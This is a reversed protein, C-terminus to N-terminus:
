EVGYMWHQAIYAFDVFDVSGLSDIDAGECYDPESCPSSLWRQVFYALDFLDVDEDPISPENFDGAIPFVEYAGMDVRDYRVRPAEDFDTQGIYSGAPNGANICLSYSKLHLDNVDVFLPDVDINGGLDTGFSLNWGSGSGNSNEIDCYNIVPTSGFDNHIEDNGNLASNDWFICNTITPACNVLNFMGGGNNEASNRSFTCNTLTSNSNNDNLIGGGDLASNDSFTCNILIPSSYDRNSIGGGFSDSQNGTFMCSTLTPSSNAINCM